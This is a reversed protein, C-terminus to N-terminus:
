ISEYKKLARQFVTQPVTPDNTMWEALGYIIYERDRCPLNDIDVYARGAGYVENYWIHSEIWFLRTLEEPLAALEKRSRVDTNGYRLIDFITTM